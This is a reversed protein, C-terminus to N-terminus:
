KRPVMWDLIDKIERDWFDWNHGGDGEKYTIKAGLEQMKAYVYKNHEYLFDETGCAQYLEPVLGAATDKQYLHFLDAESGALKEPDGFIDEWPFPNNESGKGISQYLEAIGLAGSMSAAKAYVDPRKLALYWAGYGGMSFGAVFTDERKKSVPFLRRVYAPLEETFYTMWKEGHVMDQYFNNGASATVLVCRHQQAYREVSSFLPWSSHNGYAGHLLYVVPLGEEYNYRQDSTTDTIQEQGEPTPIVVSIDVNNGLVFSYYNGTFFAM